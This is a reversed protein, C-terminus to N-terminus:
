VQHLSETQLIVLLVDVHRLDDSISNIQRSLWVSNKPLSYDRYDIRKNIAYTKIANFLEDPEIDFELELCM